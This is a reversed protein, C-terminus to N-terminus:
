STGDGKMVVRFETFPNTGHAWIEVVRYPPKVGRESLRDYGDRIALHVSEKSRGIGLDAVYEGILGEDDYSAVDGGTETPRFWSLVWAVFRRLLNVVRRMM